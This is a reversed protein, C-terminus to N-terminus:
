ADGMHKLWLRTDTVVYAVAYVSGVGRVREKAVGTLRRQPRPHPPPAARPGRSGATAHGARIRKVVNASIGLARQIVVVGHGKGLMEKVRARIDM